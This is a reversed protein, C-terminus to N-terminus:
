TIRSRCIKCKNTFVTQFIPDEENHNRTPIFREEITSKRLDETWKQILSAIKQIILIIKLTDKDELPVLRLITITAARTSKVERRPDMTIPTMLELLRDERLLTWTPASTIIRTSCVTDHIGQSETHRLIVLAMITIMIKTVDIAQFEVIDVQNLM